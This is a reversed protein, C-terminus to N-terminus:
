RRMRKVIKKGKKLSDALKNYPFLGKNVINGGKKVRGCGLSVFGYGM